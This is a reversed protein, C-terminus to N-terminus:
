ELTTALGEELAKERGPLTLSLAITAIVGLAVAFYSVIPFLPTLVFVVIAGGVAAILFIRPQPNAWVMQVVVSGMVAPLVYTQVSTVLEPPIVDILLTGFIGVALALVTLHTTAAGCIALVSALQGRKTEPKADVASQAVIAAPLLKNSINGIMFAQYMSAPGLLPFYSLPEVFWVVGFTAAIALVGAIVAGPQVGLRIALLGPGLIMVTMGAIMTIPGWRSTTKDFAAWSGTTTDQELSTM